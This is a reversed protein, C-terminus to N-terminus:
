YIILIQRALTAHLVGKWKYKDLCSSILYGMKISGEDDYEGKIGNCVVCM